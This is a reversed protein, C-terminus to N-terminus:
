ALLLSCQAWLTCVCEKKERECLDFLVFRLFLVSDL